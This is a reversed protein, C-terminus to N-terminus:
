APHETRGALARCVTDTLTRVTVPKILYERIGLKAALEPTVSESYGTCLIIPLDPRLALFERALTIGTVDPMIQDTIVVEFATPDERFLALARQGSEAVQVVFGRTELARRTFDLVMADDDVVLVRQGRGVCDVAPKEAEGATQAETRPLLIQFSTGQGPASRVTVEGGLKKVIGHVVALGLGSGEGVGRTTFFPDFIRHQIQPDVGSGTDSVTLRVYTGPPVGMREAQRRGQLELTSVGIRLIGGGEGMAHGANAGLNMLVQQLQAPNALVRASPAEIETQIHITTPLSARLLQVTEEVLFGLEVPLLEDEGQRSFVLIQSVLQQARAAAIAVQHLGERAPSEPPLEDLALETYGLIPTLLNNFDHAIGGALQGIAEMKAAHRLQSELDKRESIDMMIGRLGVPLGDRLVTASRVIVPFTTGDKRQATYENGGTPAGRLVKEINVRARERDEQVLLDVAEFGREFDDVSYGTLDYSKRNVFTIRGKADMEFVIEPLLEALERFREESQRLAAETRKRETVDVAVHVAGVISGAEDRLPTACLELIRDGLAIELLTRNSSGTAWTSKTACEAQLPCADGMLERCPRGVAEAPDIQWLNAASPNMRSLRGDSDVLFIADDVAAFTREWEAASRRLSTVTEELRAAMDGFASALEGIEDTGSPRAVERRWNPLVGAETAEEGRGLGLAAARLRELPATIRRIALVGLLIALLVAGGAGQFLRRRALELAGFAEERPKQVGVIWNTGPVQRLSLLMPVGRSNVTEGVGEFGELAADFLRNAGPPVDRALVRDDDPHLIMLRSTDYVYVYGSGGVPISRIGGLALASLLRTSCGLLGVIEGSSNRLVATFTLVPDGTRASHYPKGVVGRGEEMTRRFYERFAFSRGRLEPHPPDDAVLHGEADLIFLGNEFKPNLELLRRLAGELEVMEGSEVAEPPLVYAMLRADQLGEELFKSIAEAATASIGQLGESVSAGLAREFLRLYLTGTLGLAATVVAALLLSTKTRLTM